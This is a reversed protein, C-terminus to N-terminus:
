FRTSITLDFNQERDYPQKLLARSFNFRLPGIATTWFLSLGVSSRLHLTDDVSGVGGAGDTNDLGWVTGVDFFVGGTLGYEEPVGLPFEAELRLAAFFNGGLADRNAADTDRPGFGNPEFGRIAGNGSFRDTVRSNGSLMAIAGAELEARLAVDEQLVRTRLALLATTRVSEVDGGLGAFDQSFRLQVSSKPNLGTLRTDHNYTYGLASSAFDGEEAVLIPSSSGPDIGFISDQSVKYRLELRGARSIPFEISPTFAASSSKYASFDNDSTRYFASLRARLDRGLFNPEIFTFSTNATDAGAVYSVALFQGRGLFNSEQLQVNFGIGQAVGYSAGLALSGTPQEEVNVDVVVWEPSSGPRTDIDTASFFGLARIREAANRIERPNFPDGEVTRFQRRVVEDLTTTNGEIDIREVFIRPGRTLAFTLDLTLDRDNRTIRPEIRVFALGANLAVAEMRAITTDVASPSFLAGSRIKIERQFPEAEVGDIESVTSITAFKYPQGERLNFTLFFADRERSFEASVGL